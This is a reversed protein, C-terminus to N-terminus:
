SQILNLIKEMEQWTMQGSATALGKDPAAFTFEAGLLCSSLRVIRGKEGMGVVVKRGQFAYLSLLNSADAHTNVMCALKAVSAGKRYCNILIGELENVDPTFVYNHYSLVLESRTNKIMQQIESLFEPSAEIEVDVYNVEHDIAFRYHEIREKDSILGPRFTYLSVPIMGIIKVYEEPSWDLLDARFEMMGVKSSLELADEFDTNGLSVCIM